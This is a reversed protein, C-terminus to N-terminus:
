LNVFYGTLVSMELIHEAMNVSKTKFRNSLSFKCSFRSPNEIGIIRNKKHKFFVSKTYTSNWFALANKSKDVHHM